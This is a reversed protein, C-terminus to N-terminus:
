QQSPDRGAQIEKIFFEVQEKYKADRDAVRRLIEISRQRDGIKLYGVALSINNDITDAGNEIRYSFMRVIQNWQKLEAIVSAVRDDFNLIKAPVDKLVNEAEAAKGLSLATIGYLIRAELYSPELEWARKLVLLTNENDGKRLYTSALEFLITQKRPSLSLAFELDKISEDFGGFSRYFVGRFLFYRADTPTENLQKTLEKLTLEVYRKQLDPSIGQGGFAGSASALQERAEPSGFTNYAFTKEFLDLVKNSPGNRMETLADILTQSARVPKFNFFYLSAFLIAILISAAVSQTTHSSLWVPPQLKRGGSFAHIMALITAFLIYSVLNDFVFIGQFVYGTVLGTLLSKEIISYDGDKGKWIYWYLFFLTVLYALFGLIGSAVLWDLPVSHARDFWQEQTYMRPDYKKNFINNFGEQGWGLIPREKVGELAMPWIFFRGQTKIEAVSLSAFRSLVPSRRVVETNRVSIFILILGVISALVVLSIKRAKPSEKGFFAVLVVSVIVGGILGLIAGRTATYYLIVLELLLVPAFIWVFKKQSEKSSRVFLFIGFFITFLLFVALYTANGLTGDVRVGGQNITIKGSLQFLGYLCMFVSSALWTGLLYDWWKKIHLMSSLVLFYLFLHFITIFGEMREYNSWFAKYSNVAFIDAVGVIFAFSAFAVLLWSFRPRYDAHRIALLVWLAFIIEVIIRFAFNKGTIFPFLMSQSVFFPIFPIIFIGTFILNRLITNSNM